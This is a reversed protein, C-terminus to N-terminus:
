EDKKKHRLTHTMLRLSKTLCYMLILLIALIVLLIFAILDLHYMEFSNQKKAIMNVLYNLNNNKLLLHVYYLLKQSGNIPESQFIDVSTEMNTTYNSKGDLMKSIMLKINESTMEHPLLMEGFGRNQIIEGNLSQEAFVPTCLVPVQYMITEIRGNNGCHSIFLDVKGSELLDRQPLWESIFVNESAKIFDHNSNETIKLIVGVDLDELVSLLNKHWKLWSIDIYTGMSVLIIPLKQKEVFLKINGELPKGAEINTGGVQVVNNPMQYPFSFAIHDNILFLQIRDLLQEPHKVDFKEYVPELIQNIAYKLKIAGQALNLLGFLRYWFGPKNGRYIQISLSPESSLLMPLNQVERPFSYELEPIYAVVPINQKNSAALIPLITREEAIILDFKQTEILDTFQDSTYFDILSQYIKAWSDRCVPDACMSDSYMQYDRENNIISAICKKVVDNFDAEKMIAPFQPLQHFNNHGKKYRTDTMMALFSVEHGKEALLIGIDAMAFYHSGKFPATVLIRAGESGFLHLNFILLLIFM